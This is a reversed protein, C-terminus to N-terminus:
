LQLATYAVTLQIHGGEETQRIVVAESLPYELYRPERRNATETIWIVADPNSAYIRRRAEDINLALVDPTM